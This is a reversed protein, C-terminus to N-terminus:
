SEIPLNHSRWASVGGALNHVSTFGDKKLVAAARASRSGSACCIIVPREKFKKLEPGRSMVEGLPINIARPIHGSQFEAAERVDLVVGGQRNILQVAEQSSVKQIGSAADLVPQIVILGLVVFLALFLYWHGIIFAHM